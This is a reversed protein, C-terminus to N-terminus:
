MGCAKLAALCIAHPATDGPMTVGGDGKYFRARWVVSEKGLLFSLGQAMLGDVVLWAAAIDTSYHPISQATKNYQDRGLGDVVRGDKFRCDSWGMVKEAVLADLERGPKTTDIPTM